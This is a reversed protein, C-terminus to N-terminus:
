LTATGAHRVPIKLRVLTGARGEAPTGLRGDGASM